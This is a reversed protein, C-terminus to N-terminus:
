QEGKRDSSVDVFSVPTGKKVWRGLETADWNTLRICGHSTAYGITQPSSTGHIGFHPKTLAIWIDGVANNPGPPIRASAGKGEGLLEPQYHWWPDETISKVAYEGTPSPNYDSGLTAAYHALVRGGEDVPHVYHGGDSVIVRAIDGAPTRDGPRVAPGTVKDGEKLDGFRVGPNLKQLVEPSTHFRESLKELLSEYCMCDLKAKEYINSPITVFPGKVDDAALTVDAVVPGGTGAIESLRAYTQEDVQATKPLGERSQFWYVASETNKGWKGDIQGPSFEARDLLIQVNLVSNGAVDGAIPLKPKHNVGDASIQDWKENKLEPNPPQAPQQVEAYKKWGANMRDSELQDPSLTSDDGYPSAENDGTDANTNAAANTNAPANANSLNANTEPQTTCASLMALLTLVFLHSRARGFRIDIIRRGM